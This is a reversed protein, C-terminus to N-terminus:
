GRGFFRRKRPPGGLGTRHQLEEVTASPAEPASRAVGDGTMVAGAELVEAAADDFLLGVMEGESASDVKKRFMEVGKIVLPTGGVDVTDGVSVAGSAVRGTAVVGRNKIRFVDDVELRFM